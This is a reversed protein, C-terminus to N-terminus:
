SKILTIGTVHPQPNMIPPRFPHGMNDLIIPMRVEPGVYAPPPSPIFPQQEGPPPKPPINEMPQFCTPCVQQLHAM